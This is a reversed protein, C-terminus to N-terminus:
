VRELEEYLAPRKPFAAKLQSVIAEVQDPFGLKKIRRLIRCVEQYLKRDLGYGSLKKHVEQEYIDAVGQAFDQKLLSEYTSALSYAYPTSRLFDYLQAIPREQALIQAAVFAGAHPHRGQTIQRLLDNVAEQWTSADVSLKILSFYEFDGRGLFVCSAWKVLGAQDHQAQAVTILQKAFDLALGPLQSHYQIYCATALQQAQDYQERAIYYEVLEHQISSFHQHDLLFQLGASEGRQALVVQYKLVAAHEAFYSESWDNSDRVISSMQDLVAFFRDQMKPTSIMCAAIKLWTIQWDTWGDYKRARAERLCYSFLTSQEKQELRPAINRLQEFSLDIIGGLEGNSDDARQLAPVMVEVAAQYYPLADAYRAQEIFFEASELVQMAAAAATGTYWYDLFGDRDSHQRLANRLASRVETKTLPSDYHTSIVRQAPQSSAQRRPKRARPPPVDHGDRIAFLVAVQHKCFQGLDYPCSCVFTTLSGDEIKLQVDYEDTGAVRARWENGDQELDIVAGKRYYAKGRQVITQDIMLEFTALTVTM